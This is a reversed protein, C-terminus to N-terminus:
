LHRPTHAALPQAAPDAHITTAASLTFAGTYATINAPQPVVRQLAALDAPSGPTPPQATPPQSTTPNSGTTTSTATTATTPPASAPSSGSGGCATAILLPAACVSVITATRFTPARGTM